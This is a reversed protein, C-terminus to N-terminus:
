EINLSFVYSATGQKWHALVEYIVKGKGSLVVKGSTSIVNNDNDWIRVAYSDPQKAFELEVNKDATVQMPNNNKVLEPPAFSDAQIVSETGDENDISWSYTGLLPKVTEEGVYITLSPPKLITEESSDDSTEKNGGKVFESDNDPKENTVNKGSCGMLSLLFILTLTFFLSKFNM